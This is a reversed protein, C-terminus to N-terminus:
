RNSAAISAFREIDDSEWVLIKRLGDIDTVSRSGM